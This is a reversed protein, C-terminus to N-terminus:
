LSIYPFQSYLLCGASTYNELFWFRFFLTHYQSCVLNGKSAGLTEPLKATFLKWKSLLTFIRSQCLIFVCPTDLYHRYRLRIHAEEYITCMVFCITLYKIGQYVQKVISFILCVCTACLILYVRQACDPFLSDNCLVAWYKLWKNRATKIFVFLNM